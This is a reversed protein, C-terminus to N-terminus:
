SIDAVEANTLKFASDKLIAQRAFQRWLYTLNAIVRCVIDNMKPASKNATTM